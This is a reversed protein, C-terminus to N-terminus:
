AQTIKIEKQSSFEKINLVLNELRIGPLQYKKIYYLKYSPKLTFKNDFNLNLSKLIGQMELGFILLSYFFIINYIIFTTTVFYIFFYFIKKKRKHRKILFESLSYGKMM